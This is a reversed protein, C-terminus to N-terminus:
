STRGSWDSITVSGGNNPLQFTRGNYRGIFDQYAAEPGFKVLARRRTHLQIGYVVAVDVGLLDLLAVQVAPYTARRTFDLGITSVRRIPAIPTGPHSFSNSLGMVDASVAM